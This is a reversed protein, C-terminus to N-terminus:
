TQEQLPVAQIRPAAETDEALAGPGSGIFSTSSPGKQDALRGHRDLMDAIVRVEAPNLYAETARGSATIRLTVLGSDDNIIHIMTRQDAGSDAM